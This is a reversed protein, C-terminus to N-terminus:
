YNYVHVLTGALAARYNKLPYKGVGSAPTGNVTLAYKTECVPCVAYIDDVVNIKVSKNNVEYDHPCTRDYAYFEQETNHFVIIGNNDFGAAKTGLNNTSASVTVYTLPPLLNIFLPDNLDIYFDVYVTPIVDNKSKKCSELLLPLSIILFFVILKPKITMPQRKFHLHLM